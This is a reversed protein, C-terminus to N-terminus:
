AVAEAQGLFSVQHMTGVGSARAFKPKRGRKSTRLRDQIEKWAGALASQQLEGLLSRFQVRVTGDRLLTEVLSHQEPMSVFKMLGLMIEQALSKHGVESTVQLLAALHSLFSRTAILAQREHVIHDAFTQLFLAFRDPEKLMHFKFIEHVIRQTMPSAELVYPLNELLYELAMAETKKQFLLGFVHELVSHGFRTMVKDFSNKIPIGAESAGFYHV